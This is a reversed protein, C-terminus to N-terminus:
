PLGWRRPSVRPADADTLVRRLDLAEMSVLHLRDLPPSHGERPLRRWHEEAVDIVTPPTHVMEYPDADGAPDRAGPRTGQFPLECRPLSEGTALGGPRSPAARGNLARPSARALIACAMAATGCPRLTGTTGAQPSRLSPDAGGTELRSHRRDGARTGFGTGGRAMEISSRAGDHDEYGRITAQKM